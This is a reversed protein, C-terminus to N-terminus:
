CHFLFQRASRTGGDRRAVGDEVSGSKAADETMVDGRAESLAQGWANAEPFRAKAVLYDEWTAAEKGWEM